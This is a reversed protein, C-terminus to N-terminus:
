KIYASGDEVRAPQDVYRGHKPVAIRDFDQALLQLAETLSSGKMARGHGSIVLDPKLAALTEVSAKSKQWDITFYRPPGHLEPTQFATAYASEAKTTVFADGVILASDTERWLSVHGPSHGPTHVWRWQPMFPVSGDQPLSVLRKSVDVPKTPLLGSLSAM